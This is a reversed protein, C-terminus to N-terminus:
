IKPVHIMGVKYNKGCRHCDTYLRAHQTGLGDVADLEVKFYGAGEVGGYGFSPLHGFLWCFLGM